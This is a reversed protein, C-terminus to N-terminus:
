THMTGPKLLAVEQGPRLAGSVLKGVALRGVYDSYDLNTVLFQLPAQPDCSPAPIAALITEFLPVLNQGQGEPDTLAIGAKANTYL